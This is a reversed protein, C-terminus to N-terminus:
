TDRPTIWSFSVKNREVTFFREVSYFLLPIIYFKEYKRWNFNYIKGIDKTDRVMQCIYNDEICYKFHRMAYLSERYPPM